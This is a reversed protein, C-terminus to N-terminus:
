VVEHNTLSGVGASVTMIRMGISERVGKNGTFGVNGVRRKRTRAEAARM